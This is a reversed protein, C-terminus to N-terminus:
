TFSVEIEPRFQIKTSEIEADQFPITDVAGSDNEELNGENGNFSPSSPMVDEPCIHINEVPDKSNETTASYIYAQSDSHAHHNYEELEDDDSDSDNEGEEYYHVDEYYYSYGSEDQYTNDSLFDTTEYHQQIGSDSESYQNHDMSSEDFATDLVEDETQETEPLCDNDISMPDTSCNNVNEYLKENTGNTEGGNDGINTNEETSIEESTRIATELIKCTRINSEGPSIKGFVDKQINEIKTSAEREDFTVSGTIENEHNDNGPIPSLKADVPENIETSVRNVHAMIQAM